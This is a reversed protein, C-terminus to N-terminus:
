PVQALEETNWQGGQEFSPLSEVFRQNQVRLV